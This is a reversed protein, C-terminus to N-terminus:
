QRAVLIMNAAATSTLVYVGSPLGGLVLEIANYGKTVYLNWKRIILGNRDILRLDIRENKGAEVQLITRDAVPNPMVHRLRVGKLLRNIVVTNSYRQEGTQLNAKVRYLLKDSASFPDDYVYDQKGPTSLLTAITRFVSDSGARQLEFGPVNRNDNIRWRITTGPGTIGADCVIQFHVPLGFSRNGIIFGTNYSSVNDFAVEYAPQAGTNTISLNSRAVSWGGNIWQGVDAPLVTDFGNVWDGANFGLKITPTNAPNLSTHITWTRNVVAPFPNSISPNIGTEVRVAYEASSGPIIHVPNYHTADPGVPFIRSDAVPMRLLGTGNTVIHNNSPSAPGPQNIFPVNVNYEGLVLNGQTITFQYPLSLNALLQAGAPNDLNVDITNIINGNVAVSQQTTGNLWLVSGSSSGTETLTGRIDLNGRLCIVTNNSSNSINFVAGSYLTCNKQIFITDTNAGYSLLANTNIELDGRIMFRNIGSASYTKSGGSANASLVLHGYNRNSVSITYSATSPVDFEFIGDETGPATSLRSVLFDTHPRPTNHIYRGGDNIRFFNTSVVSVPVGASAGSANRFVAGKNLVIADGQGTAQFGTMATNAPPLVLTISQLADPTIALSLVRTSMDGAPLMVTYNGAIVRNDLIVHSASDPVADTSWNLASSWQDDGGGGDWYVQARTIVTVFLCMVVGWTKRM